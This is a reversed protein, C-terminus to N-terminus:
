DVKAGLSKLYPIFEQQVLLMQEQEQKLYRRLEGLTRRIRAQYDRVHEPTKDAKMSKVVEDIDQQRARLFRIITKRQRVNKETNLAYIEISVVAKQDLKNNNEVKPQLMGKEKGTIAVQLHNQPFDVCPNLLLPEEM